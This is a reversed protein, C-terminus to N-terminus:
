TQLFQLYDDIGKTNKNQWYDDFEINKKRFLITNKMVQYFINNSKYNVRINHKDLEARQRAFVIHATKNDWFLSHYTFGQIDNIIKHIKINAKLVNPNTIKDMDFANVITTCGKKKLIELVDHLDKTANVGLLAVYAINAKKTLSLAVDSKLPGETIYIVTDPGITPNNLPFHVRCNGTTGCNYGKSSNTMYRLRGSNKRIQINVIQGEINRVPVIIGSTYKFCWLDNIKFFGPVGELNIKLYNNLYTGIYIGSMINKKGLRRLMPYEKYLLNFDKKKFEDLIAIKGNPFYLAEPLSRYKNTKIDNDSIGRKLLAERHENLLRLKPIDLLKQYVRDLEVDSLHVSDERYDVNEKKYPMKAGYTSLNLQKKIEIAAKKGLEATYKPEHLGFRVYLGITGGGEDCKACHWVGGKKDDINLHYGEKDCIPCKVNFSRSNINDYPNVELGLLQVVQRIDFTVSSM